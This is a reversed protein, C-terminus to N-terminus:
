ISKLVIPGVFKYDSMKIIKLLDDVDKELAAGSSEWVVKKPEISIEIIKKGPDVGGRFTTAFVQGSRTMQSTEVFIRLMPYLNSWFKWMTKWSLQMTNILYLKIKKYPISGPLCIVVLAVVLKSRHAIEISFDGKDLYFFEKAFAYEDDYM